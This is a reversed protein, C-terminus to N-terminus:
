EVGGQPRGKVLAEPHRTLLDSLAQISRVGDNLQVLLRELEREFRTNDGYASGLSMMLGNAQTLTKQLAAALDPLRKAAPALGKDLNEVTTQASAMTAAMAILTQRVQPAAAIDDLNQTLAVLNKGITDFPITNVKSMLEGMSAALSSLGASSTAPVVFSSGDMTVAATPAAAVFELAVEQQGTILSGSQLSARLGRRLLADLGEAISAYARRGIGLVREPEVEYRVPALVEDTTPDYTLRM